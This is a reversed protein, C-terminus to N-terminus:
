QRDDPLPAPGPASTPGAASSKPPSPAGTGRVRPGTSPRSPPVTAAETPGPPATSPTVTSPPLAPRDLPSAMEPAPAISPVALMAPSTEGATPVSTTASSGRTKSVIAAVVLMAAIAAVTILLPTSSRSARAVPRYAGFAIPREEARVPASASIVTSDIAPASPMRPPAPTGVPLTSTHVMPAALDSSPMTSEASGAVRFRGLAAALSGVDPFRKERDKELCRLVIERLGEPVEPRLARLDHPPQQQVRMLIQLLTAASFPTTGALLEFLTSGLGWIDTREDVTRGDVIQEPAMYLPSGMMQPSQTLSVDVPDLSRAIGFDLVKIHRRGDAHRVSFLNASKIDRHIIGMAHARGLVDCTQLICDVADAIGLKGDELVEQRLDRGELYEMVMFLDGDELQDVVFVRAIGDGRIKQAARAERFFREHHTSDDSSASKLLKVAVRENLELNQAAFVLGCGGEGLIREVRYKGAFIEGERVRSSM